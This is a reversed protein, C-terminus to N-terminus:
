QPDRENKSAIWIIVKRKKLSLFDVPTLRRPYREPRHSGEM